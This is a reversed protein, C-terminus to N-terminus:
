TAPPTGYSAQAALTRRLASAPDLGAMVLNIIEAKGEPTVGKCAERHSSYWAYWTVDAPREARPKLRAPVAARWAQSAAALEAQASSWDTAALAGPDVPAGAHPGPVGTVPDVALAALNPYGHQQCFTALLQLKAGLGLPVARGLVADRPHLARAQKLLAAYPVPAPQAARAIAILAEGLRLAIDIDNQTFAPASLETM